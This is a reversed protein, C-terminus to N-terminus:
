TASPVAGPRLRSAPNASSPAMDPVTAGAQELELLRQGRRSFLYRTALDSACPGNREPLIDLCYLSAFLASAVTTGRRDPPVGASRM